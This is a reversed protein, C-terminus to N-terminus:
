KLFLNKEVARQSGGLRQYRANICLVYSTNCTLQGNFFLWKQYYGYTPTYSKFELLLFSIFYPIGKHYQQIASIFYEWIVGWCGACCEEIKSTMKAKPREPGAGGWVVASTRCCYKLELNRVFYNGWLEVWQERFCVFLSFCLPIPHLYLRLCLFNTVLFNPFWLYNGVVFLDCPIKLSIPFWVKKLPSQAVSLESKSTKDRSAANYGTLLISKEQICSRLCPILCIPIDLHLRFIIAAVVALQSSGPAPSILKPSDTVPIVLGRKNWGQDLSIM